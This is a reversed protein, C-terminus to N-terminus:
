LSRKNLIELSPPTGLKVSEGLVGDGIEQLIDLTGPVWSFISLTEGLVETHWNEIATSNRSVHEPICKLTRSAFETVTNVSDANTTAIVSLASLYDEKAKDSITTCETVKSNVSRIIATNTALLNVAELVTTVGRLRVSDYDKKTFVNKMKINKRSKKQKSM